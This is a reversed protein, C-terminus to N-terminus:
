GVTWACLSLRVFVCVVVGPEGKVFSFGVWGYLVICWRTKVKMEYESQSSQSLTCNKFCM